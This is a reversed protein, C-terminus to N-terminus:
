IRREQLAAYGYIIVVELRYPLGGVIGSHTVREGYPTGLVFENPRAGWGSPHLWGTSHAGSVM